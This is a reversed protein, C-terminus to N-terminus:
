GGSRQRSDRKGRGIGCENNRGLFRKEVAQFGVREYFKTTKEWPKVATMTTLTVGPIKKIARHATEFLRVGVSRHEPLVYWFLEDAIWHAKNFYCPMFTFAIVGVVKNNHEALHLQGNGGIILCKLTHAMTLPCFRAYSTFPSQAHFAACVPLMDKIDHITALRYITTM